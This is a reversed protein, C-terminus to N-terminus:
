ASVADQVLISNDRRDTMGRPGASRTPSMECTYMDRVVSGDGWVDIEGSRLAKDLFVAVAGQSAKPRQREGFANSIRLVCYDLGYLGHYLALYDEIALKHIGYSCIPKTEHHEPIPV